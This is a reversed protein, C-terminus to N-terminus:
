PQEGSAPIHVPDKRNEEPSAEVAEAFPKAQLQRQGSQANILVFIIWIDSHPINAPKEEAHNDRTCKHPHNVTRSTSPRQPSAHGDVIDGVPPNAIRWSMLKRHALRRTPSTGVVRDATHEAPM